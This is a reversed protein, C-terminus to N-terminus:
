LDALRKWTHLPQLDCTEGPCAEPDQHPLEGSGLSAELANMGRNVKALVPPFENLMLRRIRGANIVEAPITLSRRQFRGVVDLEIEFVVEIVYPLNM